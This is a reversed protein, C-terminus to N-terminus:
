SPPLSWPRRYLPWRSGAQRRVTAAGSSSGIMCLLASTEVVMGNLGNRGNMGSCGTAGTSWGFRAADRQEVHANRLTHM